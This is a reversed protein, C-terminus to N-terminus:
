TSAWVPWHRGNTKRTTLMPMSPARLPATTSSRRSPPTPCPTSRTPALLSTSTFCTPTLPTKPRLRRGCRVSCRPVRPPLAEWRPGSFKEKFLKYALQGQAVAAKGKLAEAEDSGIADLRNDVETDVRSIFFSAVSNVKSLDTAGGAAFEELGSIYAEIVDAYRELSFILTVNINRGEAIMQKISPICAQTAPIKVM